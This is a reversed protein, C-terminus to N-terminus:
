PADGGVAHRLEIDEYLFVVGSPEIRDVVLPGVSDGERVRRAEPAGGTDVEILAERRSAEPHWLTRSVLIVPFASPEAPYASEPAEPEPEARPEPPAQAPRAGAGPRRPKLAEAGPRVEGPRPPAPEWAEPRIELPPPAIRRVVAVESGLAERSLAPEAPEEAV